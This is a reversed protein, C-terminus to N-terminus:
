GSHLRVIGNSWRFGGLIEIQRLISLVLSNLAQVLRGSGQVLRGVDQVRCGSHQVFRGAFQVPHGIDQVFDGIRQVLWGILQVFLGDRQVHDGDAQVNKVQPQVVSGASQVSPHCRAASSNKAFQTPTISGTVKRGIFKDTWIPFIRICFGTVTADPV